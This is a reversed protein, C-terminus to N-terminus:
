AKPKTVLETALESAVAANMARRAWDSLSLKAKKAARLYDKKERDLARVNVPSKLAEGKPKPPRGRKGM